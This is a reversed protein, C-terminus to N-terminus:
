NKELDILLSELEDLDKNIDKELMNIENNEKELEIIKESDLTKAEKKDVCSPLLFLFVVVTTLTLKM